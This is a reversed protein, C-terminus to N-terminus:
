LYILAHSKEMAPSNDDSLRYRDSMYTQHIRHFNIKNKLKFM